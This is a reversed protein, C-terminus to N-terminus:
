KWYMNVWYMKWYLRFLIYLILTVKCNTGGYPLILNNINNLIYRPGTWWIMTVGRLRINKYKPLPHELIETGL